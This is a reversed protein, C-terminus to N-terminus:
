RSADVSVTGRATKAAWFWEKKVSDYVAEIGLIPQDEYGKMQHIREIAEGQSIISDQEPFQAGPVGGYNIEETSEVKTVSVMVLFGKKPVSPSIFIFKWNNIPAGADVKESSLSSLVADSRWGQAVKLAAVQADVVSTINPGGTNYPAQPKKPKFGLAIIIILVVFIAAFILYIRNKQGSFFSRLMENM